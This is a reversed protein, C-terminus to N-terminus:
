FLILFTFVGVKLLGICDKSLVEVDLIEGTDVSAATVVGNLSSYGRRQWSGDVSVGCESSDNAQHVRLAATRMTEDALRRVVKLLAKNHNNYASPNPPPPMNMVRMFNSADRHGCGSQRMAYVLRRNVEFFQGQRKSTFCAESMFGCNKCKLYLELCCGMRNSSNEQVTVSKQSCEPCNLFSIMIQLCNIDIFFCKGASDDESIKSKDNVLKSESISNSKSSEAVEHKSVESTSRKNKVFTKNKYRKSRSSSGM